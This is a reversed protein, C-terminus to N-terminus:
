GTWTAWAEDLLAQTQLHEQALRTVEAIDQGEAAAQLQREVDALRAELEAVVQEPDLGKPATTKKVPRPPPQRKVVKPEQATTTAAKDQAQERVWEEYGGPFVTVKGDGVIWLEQALLSILQRDHSVFLLTGDYGSLVQELAERSPIDLHNTPEDLVLLNPQTVLLRALALRSRQGGSLTSVQQFAEERRFLFRALYSRGEAPSLDRVELLADLVSVNEPLDGLGQRYYGAQVGNGLTVSGELPSQLGLLTTILTTKGAGNSGLIGVRQGRRLSLDPVTLLVVGQGKGKSGFGAKLSKSRLVVDPARVASASALRVQQEVEPAEVRELRELRKARGQAEQSRQGAGYRRIFEEEKVIFEQQREYERQHQLDREAKLVRYKSYNGPFANLKGNQLEWIQDVVRDLFYRDHSVVVFAHRSRGLFRELWTIGALDLHNTPEDLVLLDPDALLAKALAARTREGGSASAAPTSLAERSLGLGAVVREMTSEFTYGGRDEFQHSLTAYRSEAQRRRMPDPDQMAAAAAAIDEEMRRLEDYATMVEDRLTGGTSLEMTQPVYGIRAGHVCHVTGGDAEQQGVLIRLLSTKGAGNPGVIGIRAGETVELDVGSFVQNNGYFLTLGTGTLLAM